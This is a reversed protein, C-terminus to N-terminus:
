RDAGRVLTEDTSTTEFEDDAFDDTAPKHTMIAGGRRMAVARRLLSQNMVRAKYLSQIDPHLLPVDFM